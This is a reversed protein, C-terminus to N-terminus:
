QVSSVPGFVAAHRTRVAHRGPATGTTTSPSILETRRLSARRSLRFGRSTRIYVRYLPVRAVCNFLTTAFRLYFYRTCYDTRLPWCTTRTAASFARPLRQHAGAGAYTRPTRRYRRASMPRHPLPGVSSNTGVVARSHRWRSLRAQSARPRMWCGPEVCPAARSPHSIM